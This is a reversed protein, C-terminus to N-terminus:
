NGPHVLTFNIPTAASASAAQAPVEGTVKNGNQDLVSAVSSAVALTLPTAVPVVAQYTRGGNKTSIFRPHHVRRDPGRLILALQPDLAKSASASVSVPLLQGPDAIQIQLLAGSPVTLTVGTLQQASSVTVPQLSSGWECTDLFPPSSRPAESAPVQACVAYKGPRVGSFVFSGNQGALCRRARGSPFGLAAAPSITVIARVAAGNQSVVRGSIGGTAVQGHSACALFALALLVSPHRSSL